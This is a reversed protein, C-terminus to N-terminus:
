VQESDHSEDEELKQLGIPTMDLKSGMRPTGVQSRMESSFSGPAGQPALSSGRPAYSLVSSSLMRAGNNSTQYQPGDRDLSSRSQAAAYSISQQNQLTKQTPTASSSLISSSAVM